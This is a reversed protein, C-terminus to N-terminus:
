CSLKASHDLASAGPALGYPRPNSGWLQREAANYPLRFDHMRNADQPNDGRWAHQAYRWRRSRSSLQPGASGRSWGALCSSSDPGSLSRRLRRVTPSSRAVVPSLAKSQRSLWRRRSLFGQRSRLHPRQAERGSLASLRGVRTCVDRQCDTGKPKRRRCGGMGM